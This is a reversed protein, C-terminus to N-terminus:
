ATRAYLSEFSLVGASGLEQLKALDTLLKIRKGKEDLLKLRRFKKLGSSDGTAIFRHVAQSYEAIKSAAISDKVVVERQDETGPVVLVRLLKDSPRPVYRGSKTKRLASGARARVTKPSLGFERSAKTLSIGESRMKAIVHVARNWKEQQADPLAFYQKSTTPRNIKKKRAEPTEKSPNRRKPKAGQSGTGKKASAAGQIARGPVTSRESTTKKKVGLLTDSHSPKYL